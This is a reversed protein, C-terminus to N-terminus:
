PSDSVALRVLYSHDVVRAEPSEEARTVQDDSGGQTETNETDGTDGAEKNTLSWAATLEADMESVLEEDDDHDSERTCQGATSSPPSLIAGPPICPSVPLPPMPSLARVTSSPSTLILSPSPTLFERGSSSLIHFKSPLFKEVQNHTAGVHAVLKTKSEGCEPCRKANKLGFKYELEHKYHVVSYHEYLKARSSFTRGNELFCIHCTLSGASTKISSQKYSDATKLCKDKHELKIRKVTSEHPSWDNDPESDEEDSEFPVIRKKVIKCEQSKPNAVSNQQKGACDAENKTSTQPTDLLFEPIFKYIYRHFTGVHRFLDNVKSFSKHCDPCELTDGILDRIQDKFHVGAIHYHLSKKDSFPPRSCFHCPWESNEDSKSKQTLSARQIQPVQSCKELQSQSLFRHVMQHSIGYHRVLNANEKLKLGCLHCQTLTPDGGLMEQLESKFHVLCYHALLDPRDRGVKPCIECKFRDQNISSSLEINSAKLNLDPIMKELNDNDRSFVNQATGCDNAWTSETAMPSETDGYKDSDNPASQDVKTQESDNIWWKKPIIKEVYNHDVALHAILDAEQKKRVGCGQEPCQRPDEEMLHDSIEQKYHKLAYHIYLGSRERFTTEIVCKKCQLNNRNIVSQKWTDDSLGPVSKLKKVTLKLPEAGGESEIHYNDHKRALHKKYKKYKQFVKPCHRCKFNKETLKLHIQPSSLSTLSPKVDMEEVNEASSKSTLDSDRDGPDETPPDTDPLLEDTKVGSSEVSVIKLFNEEEQETSTDAFSPEATNHSENATQTPSEFDLSVAPPSGFNEESNIDSVSADDVLNPSSGPMPDSKNMKDMKWNMLESDSDSDSIDSFINRINVGNEKEGVSNLGDSAKRKRLPLERRKRVYPKYEPNSESSCMKIISEDVGYKIADAITSEPSYIEFVFTQHAGKRVSRRQPTGIGIVDKNKVAYMVNPICKIGNLYTRSSAKLDVLTWHGTKKNRFKLKTTPTM